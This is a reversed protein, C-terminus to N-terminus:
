NCEPDSAYRSEINEVREKLGPHTSFYTTLFENSDEFSMKNIKAFERFASSLCKRSMNHKHLREVAYEDAELEFDRSYSLNVLSTTLSVVSETFGPMDGLIFFIFGTNLSTSIIKKLVHRKKLHGLEHFYIALLFSENKMNKVLEDTFIINKSALAVANAGFRPIHAVQIKLGDIESYKQFKETDIEPFGNVLDINDKYHSMIMEDIKDLQAISARNAVFNAIYPSASRYIYKMGFILFVLLVISLIVNEELLTILRKKGLLKKYEQSSNLIDVTEIRMGEITTIVISSQSFPSEVKLESLKLEFFENDVTSLILFEDRFYFEGEILRSSNKKFVKAKYM